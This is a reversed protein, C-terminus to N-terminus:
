DGRMMRAAAGAPSFSFVVMCDVLVLGTAGAYARTSM